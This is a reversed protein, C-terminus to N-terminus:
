EAVWAEIENSTIRDRGRNEEEIRDSKREEVSETTENRKKKIKIKEIRHSAIRNSRSNKWSRKKSEIGDSRSGTKMRKREM